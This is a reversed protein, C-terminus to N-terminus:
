KKIIATTLGYFSDEKQADEWYESVRPKKLHIQMGKCWSHWVETVILGKKYFLYEEACLNFYDDLIAKYNEENDINNLENNLRDYRANFEVFLEKFTKLEELNQKQFFYLVSLYVGTLSAILAIHKDGSTVLWWLVALYLPTFILFYFEKLIYNLKLKIYNLKLKAKTTM